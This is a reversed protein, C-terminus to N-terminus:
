KNNSRIIFPLHIESSQITPLTPTPTPTKSPTPTITPTPTPTFTGDPPPTMEGEPTANPDPTPTPTATADPGTQAPAPTPTALLPYLDRTAVNTFAGDSSTLYVRYFIDEPMHSDTPVTFTGEAVGRVPLMVPHTHDGHIMRVSWILNDANLYGSEPDTGYGSFQIVDGPSVYQNPLPLNIYSEPPKNAIVTLVAETSNISAFDNSVVVRYRAGNEEINVFPTTYSQHTAGEIDVGNRQWQYTFPPNGSVDVQFTATTGGSINKNSPQSVISPGNYNAYRIRFLMGNDLSTFGEEARTGGRTIMYLAGDPGTLLHTIAMGFFGTAFTEANYPSSASATKPDLMRIWGQCFDAFFYKGLYVSPFNQRIPNYFTGGIVACGTSNTTGHTYNHIANIYQPDNTLGEERPWGYNGGAVLENIEEWDNQGVDNVYIRNTGPQAAITFPNRFGYAYIARYKDSTRNYFPNDDPISGDTNIRLIKGSTNKLSQPDEGNADGSGIYLKGDKGFAMGGGLHYNQKTEDMEYLVVESGPLIFNGIVTLRTIRQHLFPSTTTYSAYLYGNNMFNPDLILGDLGREWNPSAKVSGIHVQGEGPYVMVIQGAQYAIFIRGDNAISMATVSSLGGALQEVVFGNPLNVDARAPHKPQPFVALWLLITAIGLRYIGSKNM